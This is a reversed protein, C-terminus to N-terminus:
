DVDGYNKFYWNQGQIFLNLCQITTSTITSPSQHRYMKQSHKQNENKGKLKPNFNSKKNNVM